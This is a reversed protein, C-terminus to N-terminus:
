WMFMSCPLMMSQISPWVRVPHLASTFGFGESRFSSCSHRRIMDPLLVFNKAPCGAVVFLVCLVLRPLSSTPFAVVGVVQSSRITSQRSVEIARRFGFYPFLLMQGFRIAAWLLWGIIGTEVAQRVRAGFRRFEDSRCVVEQGGGCKTCMSPRPTMKDLKQLASSFWDLFWPLRLEAPLTERKSSKRQRLRKTRLVCQLVTALLMGHDEPSIPSLLLPGKDSPRLM